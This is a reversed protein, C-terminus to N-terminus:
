YTSMKVMVNWPLPGFALSIPEVRVPSNAKEILIRPWCSAEAPLLHKGGLRVVQTRDRFGRLKVNVGHCIPTCVHVCTHM